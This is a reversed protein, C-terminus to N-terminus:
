PMSPTTIPARTHGWCGMKEKKKEKKWKREEEKDKTDSWKMM